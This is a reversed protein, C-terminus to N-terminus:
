KKPKPAPRFDRYTRDPEEGPLPGLGKRLTGDAKPKVKDPEIAKKVPEDVAAEKMMPRVQSYPETLAPTDIPRYVGLAQGDKTITVPESLYGVVTTFRRIPVEKM